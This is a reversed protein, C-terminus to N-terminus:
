EVVWEVVGWGVDESMLAGFLICISILCFGRLGPVTVLEVEVRAGSVVVLVVAAGVPTLVVVEHTETRLSPSRENPLFVSRKNRLVVDDDMTGVVANFVVEEVIGGVVEVVGLVVEVVPSNYDGAM